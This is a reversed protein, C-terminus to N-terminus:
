VGAGVGDLIDSVERRIGAVGSVWAYRRIWGRLAALAESEAAASLEEDSRVSSVSRYGQEDPGGAARVHIYTPEATLDSGVYEVCVNRILRRAEDERWNDAAEKDDWTFAPHLPADEPKSEKVVDRPRVVDGGKARIRELEEFAVQAPVPASYGARYSARAEPEAEAVVGKKKMRASM